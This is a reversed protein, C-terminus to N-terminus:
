IIIFKRIRGLDNLNVNDVIKQTSKKQIFEFFGDHAPQMSKPCEKEIDDANLKVINGFSVIDENSGTEVIFRLFGMLGGVKEVYAEMDDHQKVLRQNVENHKKESEVILAAIHRKLKKSFEEMIEKECQLMAAKAKENNDRLNQSATKIQQLATQGEDFKEQLLASTTKLDEKQQEAVVAILKHTHEPQPHDILVCNICALKDCSNCYYEFPKNDHGQKHCRGKPKAKSQNEPKKLEELTFVTHCRLAPWKNHATM